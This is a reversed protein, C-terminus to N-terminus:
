IYNKRYGENMMSIAEQENWTKIQLLNLQTLHSQIFNTDITELNNHANIIQQIFQCCNDAQKIVQEESFRIVIWGSSTFSNNRKTDSGRYHIPKHELLSYPEDIEIDIFLSNDSYVFDPYYYDVKQNIEIKGGFHYKLTNYFREESVGKQANHESSFSHKSIRGSYKRDNLESLRWNRLNNSERLEKQKRYQAIDNEYIKALEEYEERSEYIGAKIRENVTMKSNSSFLNSLLVIITVGVTVFAIQINVFATIVVIISWTIAKSTFNKPKKIEKIATPKTPLSSLPPYAGILNIYNQPLLVIPYTEAM